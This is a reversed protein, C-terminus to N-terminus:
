SFLMVAVMLRRETLETPGSPASSRHLTHLITSSVKIVDRGVLDHLLVLDVADDVRRRGGDVASGLLDGDGFGGDEGGLGDVAAGLVHRLEDELVDAVGLGVEPAGYAQPVEIGSSRVGRALNSLVGAALRSVEEGKEGLHSGALESLLSELDESVVVGGGVSGANAVVEM